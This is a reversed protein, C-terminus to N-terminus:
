ESAYALHEGKIDTLLNWYAAAPSRHERLWTREVQTMSDHCSTDERALRARELVEL